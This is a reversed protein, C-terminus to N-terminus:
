GNLRSLVLNHWRDSGFQEVLQELILLLGIVQETLVAEELLEGLGEDLAGEVAFEGVVEAVFTV